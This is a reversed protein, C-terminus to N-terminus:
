KQDLLLDIIIQNPNLKLLLINEESKLKLELM